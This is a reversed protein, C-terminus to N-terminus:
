DGECLVLKFRYDSNSNFKNTINFLYLSNKNLTFHCTGEGCSGGEKNAAYIYDSYVVDGLGTLTPNLSLDFNPQSNNGLNANVVTQSSGSSSITVGRSLTYEFDGQETKLSHSFLRVDEGGTQVLYLNSSDSGLSESVTTYFYLKNDALCTAVEEEYIAIATCGSIFFIALLLFIIRKM